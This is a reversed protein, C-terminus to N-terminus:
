PSPIVPHCPHCLFNWLSYSWSVQEAGLILRILDLWLLLPPHSLFRAQYIRTLLDSPLGLHLHLIIKFHANFFYPICTQVWNLQGMIPNMSTRKNACCDVNTNWVLFCIEKGVAHRTLEEPFFRCHPTYNVSLKLYQGLIQRSPRLFVVSVEALIVQRWLQVLSKGLHLLLTLWKVTINM